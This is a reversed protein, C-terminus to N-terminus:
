KPLGVQYNADEDLVTVPVKREQGDVTVTCEFTHGAEVPQDAPCQPNAATVGMEGLVRVVGDQVATEDLVKSFAWGPWVFLLIVAVVVAM